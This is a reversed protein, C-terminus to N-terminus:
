RRLRFYAIRSRRPMRVEDAAKLSAQKDGVRAYFKERAILADLVEM